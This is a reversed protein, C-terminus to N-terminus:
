SRSSNWLNLFKCIIRQHSTEPAHSRRMSTILKIEFTRPRRVRRDTSLSGGIPRGINRVPGRQFKAPFLDSTNSCLTECQVLKKLACWCAMSIAMSVPCKFINLVPEFAHAIQSPPLVPRSHFWGYFQQVEAYHGMPLLVPVGAPAFSTSLLSHDLGM